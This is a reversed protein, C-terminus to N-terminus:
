RGRESRCHSRRDHRRRLELDRDLGLTHLHLHALQPRPDLVPRRLRPRGLRPHSRRHHKRRPARLRRRVDLECLRDSDAHRAPLRADGGIADANTAVVQYTVHYPPGTVSQATKALSTTVAPASIQSIAGPYSGTYKVQTGSAISQVPLVSTAGATTGRVTFSYQSTYAGQAATGPYIRLRDHFTSGGITTQVGTLSFADAPWSDDMAPAMSFVGNGGSQDSALGAGMTGTTGSASVDFSGGLAPASNSVSISTIKNAAANIIDEVSSFGDSTACVQTSGTQDPKGNWVEVTFTQASATAASSTLYAYVLPKGGQSTARAPIAASQNSALGLKGGTFGSLKIWVDSGLSAGNLEYGVYGSHNTSAHGFDAYFPRQTGDPSHMSTVTVAAAGCTAAQAGPAITLAAIAATAAVLIAGACAAARSIGSANQGARLASPRHPLRLGV